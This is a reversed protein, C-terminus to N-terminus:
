ARGIRAPRALTEDYSRGQEFYGELLVLARKLCYRVSDLDNLDALNIIAGIARGELDPMDPPLKRPTAPKADDTVLAIQPKRM